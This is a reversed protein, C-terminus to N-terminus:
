QLHCTDRRWLEDAVYRNVAAIFMIIIDIRYDDGCCVM